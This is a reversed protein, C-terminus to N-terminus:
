PEIRFLAGEGPALLPSALVGGSLTRTRGDAGIRRATRAPGGLKVQFSRSRALDKNVLFVYDDGNERDKLWGVLARRDGGRVDAIRAGPRPAPPLTDSDIGISGAASQHIVTVPDLRMLTPGIAALSRDFDRIEGFRAAPHGARDLVGSGFADNVYPALTWYLIGKAGYAIACDVQWRVQAMSLPHISGSRERFPSLQVVVWFPIAAREPTSRAAEAVLKLNVFFDNRMPGTMFPYHDFCLLPVERGDKEFVDFSTQLYRRYAPVADSGFRAFRKQGAAYFPLLNIFPLRDRTTSDAALLATMRRLNEFQEPSSPEDWLMWGEVSPSDIGWAPRLTARIAPANGEVAPNNSVIGANAPREYQVILRLDFGPRVRRLSDTMRVAARAETSDFWTGTVLVRIGADRLRVLRAADFRSAPDRDDSYHYGGIVFERPRWTAHAPAGALLAIAMALAITSPRKM